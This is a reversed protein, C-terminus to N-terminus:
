YKVSLSSCDCTAHTHNARPPKRSFWAASASPICTCTRPASVTYSARPCYWSLTCVTCAAPAPNSWAFNSASLRLSSASPSNSGARLRGRGLNGATIPRTVEGVPAAKRSMSFIRARRAGQTRITMLGTRTCPCPAACSIAAASASNFPKTSRPM